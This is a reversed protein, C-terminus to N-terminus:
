LLLNTVRECKPELALLMIVMSIILVTAFYTTRNIYIKSTCLHITLLTAVVEHNPIFTQLKNFFFFFFFTTRAPLKAHLLKNVSARGQMAVVRPLYVLSTECLLNMKLQKCASSQIEQLVFALQSTAPVKSYRHAVETISGNERM